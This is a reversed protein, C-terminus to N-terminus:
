PVAKLVGEILELDPEAAVAAATRGRAISGRAKGLGSRLEDVGNSVMTAARAVKNELVLQMADLVSVVEELASRADDADGFRHALSYLFLLVPLATSYPVIVVGRAFADAHARRLVEYAADPV